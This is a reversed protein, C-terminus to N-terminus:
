SDDQPTGQGSHITVDSEEGRPFIRVECVHM